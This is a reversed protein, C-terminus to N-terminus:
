KFNSDGMRVAGFEGNGKGIKHKEMFSVVESMSCMKSRQNKEREGSGHYFTLDMLTLINQDM